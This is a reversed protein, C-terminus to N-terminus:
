FDVVFSPVVVNVEEEQLDETIFKVVEASTTGIPFQYHHRVIIREIEVDAEVHLLRGTERQQLLTVKAKKGKRKEKNQGQGQNGQGQGQGQGQGSM